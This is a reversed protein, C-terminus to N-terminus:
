EEGNSESLPECKNNVCQCELPYYWEISTIKGYRSTSCEQEINMCEGCGLHARCDTNGSCSVDCNEKNQLSCKHNEIYVYIFIGLIVAIILCLATWKAYFKGDKSKRSKRM